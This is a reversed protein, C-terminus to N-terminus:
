ERAEAACISVFAALAFLAAWLEGLAPLHVLGILSASGVLLGAILIM